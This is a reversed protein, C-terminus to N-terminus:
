WRRPFVSFLRRNLIRLFLWTCGVAIGLFAAPTPGGMLWGVISALVTVAALWVNKNLPKLSM